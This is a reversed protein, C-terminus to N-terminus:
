HHACWDCMPRGGTGPAVHGKRLLERYHPCGDNNHHKSDRDEYAHSSHVPSIAAMGVEGTTSAVARLTCRAPNKTCSDCNCWFDGQIPGKPAFGRVAM